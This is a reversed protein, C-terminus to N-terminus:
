TILSAIICLTELGIADHSDYKIFIPAMEKSWFRFNELSNQLWKAEECVKDVTIFEFEM